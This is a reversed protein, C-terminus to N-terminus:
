QKKERCHRWLPQRSFLWMILVNTNIRILIKFNQLNCNGVYIFVSSMVAHGWFRWARVSARFWMALALHCSGQPGKLFWCYQVRLAMIELSQCLVLASSPSPQIKFKPETASGLLSCLAFRKTDSAVPWNSSMRHSCSQSFVEVLKISM